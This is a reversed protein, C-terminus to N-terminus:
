ITTVNAKVHFGVNILFLSWYNIVIIAKETFLNKAHWIRVKFFTNLNDFFRNLKEGTM